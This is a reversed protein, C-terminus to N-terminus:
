SGAGGEILARYVHEALGIGGNESLKEAYSRTLLSSFAEEGPGGGFSGEVSNLGTSNLMEALFGAEFAVAANWTKEDRDPRATRELPQSAVSTSPQTPIM